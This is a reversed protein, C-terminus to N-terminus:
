RQKEALHWYNNALNSTNTCISKNRSIIFSPLHYNSDLGVYYEGKLKLFGM